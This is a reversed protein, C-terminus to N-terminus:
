RLTPHAGRRRGAARTVGILEGLDFPKTLVWVVNLTSATRADMATRLAPGLASILVLPVDRIEPRCSSLRRIFEFGDVDARPMVMDLVVVHPVHEDLWALGAAGDDTAHVAHGEAELAEVLVGRSGHDDDVVLVRLAEVTQGPPPAIV